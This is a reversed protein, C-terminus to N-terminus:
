SDNGWLNRFKNIKYKIDLKFESNTERGLYKFRSVQKLTSNNIVIKTMMTNKVTKPKPPRNSNWRDRICM